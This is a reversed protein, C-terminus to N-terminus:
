GRAASWAERLAEPGFRALTDAVDGHRLPVARANWMTKTIAANLKQGADDPDGWVWVHEFQGLLRAYHRRWASAGPLGVACALGAKILAMCDIEGETIHIEASQEGTTLPDGLIARAANFLRAREGSVGLIKPCKDTKCNHEALCRFKIALPNGFRDLYPISLRGVCHHHEPAPDFVRGLRFSVADAYSLGREDLYSLVAPDDAHQEYRAVAQELAEMQQESLPTLGDDREEEVEQAM